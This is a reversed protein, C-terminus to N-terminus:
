GNWPVDGGWSNGPPTYGPEGPGPPTYGPEGPGPPTTPQNEREDPPKDWDITFGYIQAFPKLNNELYQRQEQIALIKGAPSLQSDPTRQIASLELQFQQIIPSVSAAFAQRDAAELKTMDLSIDMEKLTKQLKLTNAAQLEQLAINNNLNQAANQKSIATQNALDMAYRKEDATLNQEARKEDATLNQAARKEDATLNQEAGQKSLESQSALDLASKYGISTMDQNANQASIMSANKLDLASKYGTLSVDQNANQASLGSAAYTSADQAAIPAAADIAAREGAGATLSSSLLGRSNGQELAKNRASQVYPSDEALLKNLQGSVTEEEKIDRAVSKEPTAAGTVVPDVVPATIKKGGANYATVISDSLKKTSDGQGGLWSQYPSNGTGFDGTYGTASSLLSNLQPNKGLNAM